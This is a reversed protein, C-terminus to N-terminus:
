AAIAVGCVCVFVCVCLCVCVCVEQVDTVAIFGLESTSPGAARRDRRQICVCVRRVCVHRVCACARV